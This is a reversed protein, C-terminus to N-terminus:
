RRWENVGMEVAVVVVVVAGMVVGSEHMGMHFPMHGDVLVVGVNRRNVGLFTGFTDNAERQKHRRMGIGADLRRESRLQKDHRRRALREHAPGRLDHPAM